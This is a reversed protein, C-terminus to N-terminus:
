KSEEGGPIQLIRVCTNRERDTVVVIYGTDDKAVEIKPGRTDILIAARNCVERVVKCTMELEDKCM